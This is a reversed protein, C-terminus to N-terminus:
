GEIKVLLFVMYYCESIGQFGHQPIIYIYLHAPRFARGACASLNHSIEFFTNVTM